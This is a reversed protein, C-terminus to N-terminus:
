KERVELIQVLRKLTRHLRRLKGEATLARKKWDTGYVGAEEQIKGLSAEFAMQASRADLGKSKVENAIDRALTIPKSGIQPGLLADPTTDLVKALRNLSQGGPITGRLWKVVTSESVEVAAALDKQKM